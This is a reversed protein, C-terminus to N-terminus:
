PQGVTTFRSLVTITDYLTDHQEMLDLVEDISYSTGLYGNVLRVITLQAAGVPLEADGFGM